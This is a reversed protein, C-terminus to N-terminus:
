ATAEITASWPDPLRLRRMIATERAQMRAAGAPSDHEHGGAHLVGHVVLHALHERLTKGQERAEREVVPLCIAIDARILAPDDYCFTLVNTARDRQRYRHNLERGEEAGTFRLTIGADSEIAAAVWRRLRARSEPLVGIEEGLQVSLSLRARATAADASIASATNVRRRPM